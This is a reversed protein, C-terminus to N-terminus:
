KVNSVGKQKAKVEQNALRKELNELKALIKLIGNELMKRHADEQMKKHKLTAM